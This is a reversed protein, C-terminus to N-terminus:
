REFLGTLRAQEIIHSDMAALVTAKDAGPPLGLKRDVAFLIFHYHHIGHGPPPMPGKYGYNDSPWSNIGHTAAVEPPKSVRSIGEPLKTLSPALGYMVWHTWGGAVPADPDDCILVLEETGAPIGTWALPPSLDDAPGAYRPPILENHGFASSIM